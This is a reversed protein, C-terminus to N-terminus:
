SIEQQKNIPIVDQQVPVRPTLKLLANRVGEVAAGTQNLKRSMDMTAILQLAMVCDWEDETITKGEIQPHPMTVKIPRWLTCALQKCSTMEGDVQLPM